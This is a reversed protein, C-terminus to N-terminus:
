RERAVVAEVIGVAATTTWSVVEVRSLDVDQALWSDVISLVAGVMILAV